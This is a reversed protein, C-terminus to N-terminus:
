GNNAGLMNEIIEIAKGGALEVVSLGSLEPMAKLSNIGSLTADLIKVATLYDSLKKEAMLYAAKIIKIIQEQTRNQNILYIASEILLINGFESKFNDVYKLVQRIDRENMYPNTKGASLIDIKLQNYKDWAENIKDLQANAQEVTDIMEIVNNIQGSM